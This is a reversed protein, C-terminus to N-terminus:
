RTPQELGQPGAMLRANVCEGLRRRLRSVRNYLTQVARQTAAAYDILSSDGYAAALLERDKASLRQLCRLLAEHRDDGAAAREARRASVAEIAEDNFQLRDRSASRVFNKVEYFAVGFAWGLFPRDADYSDFKQWLLLSTRQFVDEADARHPLLSQIYIM